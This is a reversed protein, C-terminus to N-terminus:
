DDRLIKAPRDDEDGDNQRKKSAGSGDEMGDMREVVAMGAMKTHLEGVTKVLGDRQREIERQAGDGDAAAMRAQYSQERYTANAARCQDRNATMEALAKKLGVVEAQLPNTSQFRERAIAREAEVARQRGAKEEGLEKEKAALLAKTEKVNANARRSAKQGDAILSTIKQDRAELKAKLSSVEQRLESVENTDSSRGSTEVSQQLKAVAAKQDTLQGLLGEMKVGHENAESQLRRIKVDRGMLDAELTEIRGDRLNAQHVCRSHDCIHDPAQDVDMDNNEPVVDIVMTNEHVDLADQLAEIDTRQSEREQHHQATIRQLEADKAQLQEHLTAQERNTWSIDGQLRTIEAQQHRTNELERSELDKCHADKDELLRELEVIRSQYASAEIAQDQSAQDRTNELSTLEPDKRVAEKAKIAEELEVFRAKVELAESKAQKMQTMLSERESNDYNRLRKSRDLSVQLRECQEQQQELSTELDSCRAQLDPQSESLALLKNELVIKETALVGYDHQASYHDQLM